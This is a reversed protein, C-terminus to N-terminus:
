EVLLSKVSEPYTVNEAKPARNSLSIVPDSTLMLRNFVDEINVIRSFKRAHRERYKRLCKNRTEQAEESCMGIPLILHKMITAGHVLIKHVTPSLPYWKYLQVYLKHTEDAYKQFAEINAARKSNIVCLITYFRQLLNDDLGTIRAVLEWNQFFKRSTNGDNSNGGGPRPENIRLGLEEKLQTLIETEREKVKTNQKSVRWTPKEMVLRFDFNSFKDFQKAYYNYFIYRFSIKLLLEMSRMYAHLPSMGFKYKTPDDSDVNSRADNLRKGSRGCVYCAQSYTDTVDNVVKTDVMSFIMVPEVSVNVDGLQCLTPNLNRIQNNMLEVEKKTLETSEKAFLLKIPRCLSISSPLTNDWIIEESDTEIKRAMLRLPVLSFMFINADSYERIEDNEQIDLFTQKYRSHNGSGDCGWKYLLQVATSSALTEAHQAIVSSVSLLRKTTHDILNQLPVVAASPSISIETVNFFYISNLIKYTKVILNM